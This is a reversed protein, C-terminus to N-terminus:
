VCWNGITHIIGVKVFIIRGYSFSSSSSTQIKNRLEWNFKKEEEEAEAECNWHMTNKRYKWVLENKRKECKTPLKKESFKEWKRWLTKMHLIYQVYVLFAVNSQMCVFWLKLHFSKKEHRRMTTTTKTSTISTEWSKQPQTYSDYAAFEVLLFAWSM